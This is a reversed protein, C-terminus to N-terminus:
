EEEDFEEGCYPCKTADLPIEKECTPCEAVEVEELVAGPTVVEEEEYEDGTDFGASVVDPTM